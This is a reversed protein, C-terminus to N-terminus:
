KRCFITFRVSRNFLLAFFTSNAEIPRPSLTSFACHIRIIKILRGASQFYAQSRNSTLRESGDMLWLRIIPRPLDSRVIGSKLRPSPRKRSWIIRYIPVRSGRRAHTEYARGHIIRLPRAAVREPFDFLMSLHFPCRRKHKRM